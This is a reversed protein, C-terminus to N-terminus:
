LQNSSSLIPPPLLSSVHFWARVVSWKLPNRIASHRPALVLFLVLVLLLMRAPYACGRSCTDCTDCTECSGYSCPNGAGDLTVVLTVAISLWTDCRPEFARPFAALLLKPIARVARIPAFELRPHVPSCRHSSVESNVHALPTLRAKARSGRESEQEFLNPPKHSVTVAPPPPRPARPSEVQNFYSEIM